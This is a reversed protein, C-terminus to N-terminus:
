ADRHVAEPLVRQRSKVGTVTIRDRIRGYSDTFFALINNWSAVNGSRNWLHIVYTSRNLFALLPSHSPRGHKVPNYGRKAGEQEGYRLLVTSDFTLWDERITNWLILRFLYTWVNSSLTEAMRVTKLKNFMRALTTAADPLRRVGFVRALVDKNGLYMLHSFRETGAFIMAIFAITKGYIGMGNPSYEEIPMPIEIMGAFGIREFFSALLAFGGYATM